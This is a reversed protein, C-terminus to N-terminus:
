GRTRFKGPTCHYHKQFVRTFHRLDSFGSRYATEKISLDSNKLLTAAKFMRLDMLYNSLKRGMVRHFIESFYTRNLGAVKAIEELSIARDFNAEIFDVAKRFNEQLKQTGRAAPKDFGSGNHARTALILVNRFSNRLMEEAGLDPRGFEQLMGGILNRVILDAKGNLSVHFFGKLSKEEAVIAEFFPQYEERDFSRKGLFAPTFLINVIEFDVCDEYGHEDTRTMFFLDGARIKMKKDNAIHTAEGRWVYVIEFFDHQHIPISPQNLRTIFFDRNKM